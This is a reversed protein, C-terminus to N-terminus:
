VTGANDSFKAIRNQSTTAVTNTGDASTHTLVGKDNVNLTSGDNFVFGQRARIEGAVDLKSKPASTGIGLNGEETLRMQETDNGSFFDGIRFSLAGRDRIVQGEQGNNALVTTAQTEGAKLITLAGNEEIPGVAQQQPATMQTADVRQLEIQKEQVLASGIRQSIKGSLTKVTVVCLYLGPVLHEGSGNQLTWDLVNGKSTVDFLLQGSDAYIQLQMQVVTSPATFRLREALATGTIVPATAPLTVQKTLDQGTAAHVAFLLFVAVTIRFTIRKM